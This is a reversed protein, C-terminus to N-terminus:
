QSQVITLLWTQLSTPITRMQPISSNRQKYM